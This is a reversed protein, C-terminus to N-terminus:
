DSCWGETRRNDGITRLDIGYPALRRRFRWIAVRMAVGACEPGGDRRSGYLHSILRQQPVPHGAMLLELLLRQTPTLACQEAGPAAAVKDAEPVSEENTASRRDRGTVSNSKDHWHPPRCAEEHSQSHSFTYPDFITLIRNWCVELDGDARYMTARFALRSGRVLLTPVVSNELNRRRQM